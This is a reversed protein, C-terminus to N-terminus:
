SNNQAEEQERQRILEKEYEWVILKKKPPRKPAIKTFDFTGEREQRERERIVEDAATHHMEIVPEPASGYRYGRGENKLMYGGALDEMSQDAPLKKVDKLSEKIARIERAERARDEKLKKREIDTIANAPVSGNITAEGLYRGQLDEIWAVQWRKPDRRLYVKEGKRGIMFDGWYDIGNEGYASDHVGRAGIVMPKSLRMCLMKLSRPAVKRITTAEKEWLEDPCMGQLRKGKGPRKNAINLYFHELRTEVHEFPLLQKNKIEKKLTDPRNAPKNGTYGDLGVEFYRHNTLFAREITKSRPRRPIAFIVRVALTGMVGLVKSPDIDAKVATKRGGAFSLFDKGNDIYICSPIGYDSFARFFAEFIHDTNPAEAHFSRGLIKDSKMDAIVTCWPRVTKGNKLTVLMDLQVHDAVYIEGCRLNSYDRDSYYGYKNRYAEEGKRKYFISEKSVKKHLMRVFASCSPFSSLTVSKDRRFAAGLAKIWSKEASDGNLFANKFYEFDERKVTSSGSKGYKGLLAILGHQVIDKKIRSISPESVHHDPYLANWRHVKSKENGPQSESWTLYARYKIAKGRNYEPERPLAEEFLEEDTMEESPQAADACPVGPVSAAPPAGSKIDTGLPNLAPSYAAPGPQEVAPAADAQGMLLPECGQVPAAIFSRQHHKLKASPSIAPDSPLVRIHNNLHFATRYKGRQVAKKTAAYSKGEILALEKLSLSQGKATM